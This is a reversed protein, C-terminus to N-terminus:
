SFCDEMSVNGACASLFIKSLDPLEKEYPLIFKEVFKKDSIMMCYFLGCKRKPLGKLKLLELVHYRPVLRKEFSYCLLKPHSIVYSLECDPRKMFFDAKSKINEVSLFLLQPAKLIASSIEAESLGFTRMVKIKADVSARSMRCTSHLAFRFMKSEPSFGLEIARQVVSKISDLRRTIFRHNCKMLYGIQDSSLGCARLYSVNPMIRNDLNSCLLHTNKIIARYLDAKSSFLDALFEIKLQVNKRHLFFPNESILKAIEPQSFGVQQLVRVKPKLTKEVQTCLLIPKRSVANRIGAEDLGISKFFKLVADPKSPSNIHRIQKSAEIAKEPSFGISSILYGAIFSLKPSPKRATSTSFFLSSSIFISSRLTLRPLLCLNRTLSIMTIAGEVRREREWCEGLM